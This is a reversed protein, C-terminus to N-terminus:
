LKTHVSQRPMTKQSTLVIQARLLRFEITLLPYSVFFVFFFLYVIKDNNKCCIPQRSHFLYNMSVRFGLLRFGMELGYPYKNKEILIKEDSALKDWTRSGIKIDMVCDHKASVNELRIFTRGDLEAHGHFKAIQQLSSFSFVILWSLTLGLPIFIRFLYLYAPVIYWLSANFM